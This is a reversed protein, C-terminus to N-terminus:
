YDSSYVLFLTGELSHTHVRACMDRSSRVCSFKSRVCIKKLFHKQMYKMCTMRFISSHQYLTACLFNQTCVSKLFNLPFMSQSSSGGTAPEHVRIDVTSKFGQKIVRHEHEHDRFWVLQTLNYPANHVMRLM